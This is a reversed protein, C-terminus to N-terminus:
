ATSAPHWPKLTPGNEGAAGEVMDLVRTNEKSSVQRGKDKKSMQKGKTKKSTQQSKFKIMEPFLLDTLRDMPSLRPLKRNRRMKSAAKKAQNEEMYRTILEALHVRKSVRAVM